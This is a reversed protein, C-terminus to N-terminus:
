LAITRGASLSSRPRLSALSRKSITAYTALCLVHPNWVNTAVEVLVVIYPKGSIKAGDEVM